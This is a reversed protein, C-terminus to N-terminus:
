LIPHISVYKNDEVFYEGLSKSKTGTAGGRIDNQLEHLTEKFEKM